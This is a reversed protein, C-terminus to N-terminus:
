VGGGWWGGVLWWVPQLELTHVSLLENHTHSQLCLSLLPKMGTIILVAVSGALSPSGAAKASVAAM